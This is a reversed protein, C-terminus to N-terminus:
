NDNQVIAIIKQQTEADRREIKQQLRYCERAVNIVAQFMEADNSFALLSEGQENYKVRGGLLTVVYQFEREDVINNSM